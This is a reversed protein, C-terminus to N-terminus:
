VVKTEVLLVELWGAMVVERMEAMWLDMTEEKSAAMQVVKMEATM